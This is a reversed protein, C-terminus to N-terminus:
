FQPPPTVPVAGTAIVNALLPRTVLAFTPPENAPVGAPEHM